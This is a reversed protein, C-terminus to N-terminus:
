LRVWDVVRVVRLLSNATFAAVDGGSELDWEYLRWDFM